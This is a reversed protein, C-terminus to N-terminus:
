FFALFPMNADSGVLASACSLTIYSFSLATLCVCRLRSEGCARGCVRTAACVCGSQERQSSRQPRQTRGERNCRTTAANTSWSQIPRAVSFPCHHPRQLQTGKQKQATQALKLAKRHWALTAVALTDLTCVATAWCLRPVVLTLGLGYTDASVM